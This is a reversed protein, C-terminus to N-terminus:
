ISYKRRFYFDYAVFIFFVSFITVVLISPQNYIAFIIGFFAIIPMLPWLPMMFRDNSCDRHLRTYGSSIVILLYIILIEIGVINILVDVPIIVCVFFNCIGILVLSWKPVNNRNTSSMVHNISGPWINNRAMDLYVRSFALNSSLAADFMAVIVGSILFLEGMNGFISKTIIVLPDSFRLIRSIDDISITASTIALIEILVALFVAILVAKPLNKQPDKIEESFYLPWDYGNFAFLAPVIALLVGQMGVSNFSFINVNDVILNGLRNGNLFFGGVTFIVIVSLEIFVMFSAVISSESIKGLALLTILGIFLLEITYVPLYSILSHLYDAAADIFTSSIIIGLSIFIISSGYGISPGLASSIISYAGGTRPFLVGLEAYCFAMSIAICAGITFATLIKNGAEQLCFGYVLFVSTTPSIASLAISVVKFLSLSRIFVSTTSYTKM